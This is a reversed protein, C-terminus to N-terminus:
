YLLLCIRSSPTNGRPLFLCRSGLKWDELWHIDEKHSLQPKSSGDQIVAPSIQFVTHTKELTSLVLQLHKTFSIDGKNKRPRCHITKYIKWRYVSVSVKEQPQDTLIGLILTLTGEKLHAAIRQFMRCAVVEPKLWQCSCVLIWLILASLSASALAARGTIPAIM